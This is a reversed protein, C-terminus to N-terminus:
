RVLGGEKIRGTSNRKKSPFIHLKCIMGSVSRALVAELIGSVVVSLLQQEYSVDSRHKNSLRKRGTTSYKLEPVSACCMIDILTDSAPRSYGATSGVATKPAKNESAGFPVYVSSDYSEVLKAIRWIAGATNARHLLHQLFRCCLPVGRHTNAVRQVFGLGKNEACYVFSLSHNGAGVLPFHLNCKVLGRFRWESRRCCASFTPTCWFVRDNDM